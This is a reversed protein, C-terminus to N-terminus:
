SSVVQVSAKAGRSDSEWAMPPCSAMEARVRETEANVLLIERRAANKM